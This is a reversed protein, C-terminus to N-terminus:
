QTRITPKDSGVINTGQIISVVVGVANINITFCVVPKELCKHVTNGRWCDKLRKVARARFFYSNHLAELPATSESSIGEENHVRAAAFFNFVESCEPQLWDDYAALVIRNREAARVAVEEWGTPQLESQL